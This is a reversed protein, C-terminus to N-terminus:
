WDLQVLLNRYDSMQMLFERVKEDAVFVLRDMEDDTRQQFRRQVEASTMKLQAHGVILVNSTSSLVTGIGALNEIDENNLGTEELIEKQLNKELDAGTQIEIEDCQVGGGILDVAGNRNRVGFVYLNDTTRILGVTSLHNLPDLAFRAHEQSLSPFTAVYRYGITGLLIAGPGKEEEFVSPNLVRYYTGDWVRTKAHHLIEEWELRVREDYEATSSWASDRHEISLESMTFLRRSLVQATYM